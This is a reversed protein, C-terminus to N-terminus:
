ILRPISYESLPTLTTSNRWSIDFGLQLHEIKGALEARKRTLAHLVNPQEAGDPILDNAM